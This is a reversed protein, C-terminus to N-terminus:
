QQPMDQKIYQVKGFPVKRVGVKKVRGGEGGEEGGEEGSGCTGRGLLSVAVDGRGTAFDHHHVTTRRLRHMALVNDQRVSPPVTRRILHPQRDHGTGGRCLRHRPGRAHVVGHGRDAVVVVARTGQQDKPTGGGFRAVHSQVIFIRQVLQIQCVGTGPLMQGPRPGQDRRGRGDFGGRAVFVHGDGVVVLQVDKAPHGAGVHFRQLLEFVNPHVVDGGVSPCFLVRPKGGRRGGGGTAAIPRGPTKRQRGRQGHGVGIRPHVFGRQQNKPTGVDVHILASPGIDIVQIIQPRVPQLGVDPGLYTNHRRLTQVM